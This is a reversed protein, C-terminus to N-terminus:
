HRSRDRRDRERDRDRDTTSRYRDDYYNRKSENGLPEALADPSKRARGGSRSFPFHYNLDGSGNYVRRERM